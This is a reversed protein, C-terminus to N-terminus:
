NYHMNYFSLTNANFLIKRFYDFDVQRIALAMNLKAAHERAFPRIEDLNIYESFELVNKPIVPSFEFEQM